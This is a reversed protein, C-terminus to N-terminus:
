RQPQLSSIRLSLNENYHTYGFASKSDVDTYSERRLLLNTGIAYWSDHHRTGHTDGTLTEDIRVHVAQVASGAVRMAETGVIKGTWKISAGSGSCNGVLTAGTSDSRPRFTTTPDCLYSKKDVQKFFEHYTIISHIDIAHGDGCTSWEDWREQLADWRVDDGCATKTVTVTTQNPYTHSAGGLASVHESGKTDYVYVGPTPAFTATTTSSTPRSTEVNTSSRATVTKSSHSSVSPGGVVAATSPADKTRPTDITAARYRDVAQGVTVPTSRKGVVYFGGFAILVVVATVLAIIRGKRRKPVFPRREITPDEMQLRVDQMAGGQETTTVRHGVLREEVLYFQV